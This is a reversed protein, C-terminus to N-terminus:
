CDPDYMPIQNYSSYTDMFSLLAHGAIADVLQDIRPLPFSDKPCAKKLNTFDVCTRWKGNPKKVLVPNTLWEPYFSEKFLGVELLRDVEEKLAIEREGSVPRRKQRIGTCNHFINLHHCMVGPDIGVMDSHSWAFIDLNKISFPTLSERIEYGLHSGVKLVKSPDDEDIPISITDETPAPKETPMPIRPDLDFDFDRPDEVEMGKNSPADKYAPADVEPCPISKCMAPTSPADEKLPADVEHVHDSELPADKKQPADVKPDIELCQFTENRGELKEGNIERQVVDGEHNMIIEEVSRIRSVSGLVLDSANTARTKEEEPDEVFYHVHVEGNPEVQIDVTDDEPLGKGEYKRRHFEKVAKHYCDRSEYQSGRLSGVGNPTPFKIMLHHISTIVRFAQLWPRGVLVNHVFDQDLVKFEIMQSVSPTGKGLIVPLRISGIVRVVEGTFGYVHTDEFNMNSDPFGLKKYTTYYLINMSSGNDLFIRHVNMTGILMTIVLADNHPHYVCRSERERFTIDSSEGKFIKSSRDELSHINTLPQHRAERANRELARNSDGVFSHGGFFARISGARQFKVDAPNEDADAQPPHREDKEKDDNGRRRKVKDIWEGLYGDKILEEIEDKLHRCEHTDHGASEHYECYKKKDRRKAQGKSNNTNDNKRTENLSQEIAKFSEAQALVDALSVPDKGQLHKWFDTGMRLGAILIIKLTEDM